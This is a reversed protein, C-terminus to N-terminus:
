NSEESSEQGSGSQSEKIDAPKGMFGSKRGVSKDNSNPSFVAGFKSARRDLLPLNSFRRDSGGSRQSLISARHNVPSLVSNRSSRLMSNRELGNMLSGQRQVQSIKRGDQNINGLKEEDTGEEKEGSDSDSDSESESNNEDEDDGEEEEKIEGFNVFGVRRNKVVKSEFEKQENEDFEDVNEESEEEEEWDEDDSENKLLPLSDNSLLLGEQKKSTFSKWAKFAMGLFLITIMPNILVKKKAKMNGQENNSNSTSKAENERFSEQPAVSSKSLSIRLSTRLRNLANSFKRKKLEMSITRNKIKELRQSIQFEENAILQVCELSSNKFIDTGYSRKLTAFLLENFYVNGDEDRRM